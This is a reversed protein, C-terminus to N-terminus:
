RTPALVTRLWEALEAGVVQLPETSRQSRTLLMAGEFASLIVLATREARDPALGADTLGDTIARRWAAFADACADGIPLSDHAMELAVTAVPCGEAWDTSELQHAAAAAWLEVAAAPDGSEFAGRLLREYGAGSRALADVALQEKGGPFHHSQSGWPTESEAVVQRWGTAAYGQRQFLRSATRVMKSRTDSSRAM